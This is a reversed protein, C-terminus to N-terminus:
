NRDARAAPTADATTATDSSTDAVPAAAVPAADHDANWHTTSTTTTTTSSSDVAASDTVAPATPDARLSGDRKLPAGPPTGYNATDSNTYKDKTNASSTDQAVAVGGAISAATIALATLKTFTNM